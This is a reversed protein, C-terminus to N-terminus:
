KREKSSRPPQHPPDKDGVRRIQGGNYMRQVWAGKPTTNPYVEDLAVSDGNTLYIRQDEVNFHSIEVAEWQPHIGCVALAAAGIQIASRRDM